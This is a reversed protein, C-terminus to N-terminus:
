AGTGLAAMAAPAGHASLSQLCLQLAKAM